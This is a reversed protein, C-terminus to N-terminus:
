QKCEVRDHKVTVRKIIAGAQRRRIEHSDRVNSLVDRVKKIEEKEPACGLMESHCCVWCAISQARRRAGVLWRV